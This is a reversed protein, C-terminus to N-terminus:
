KVSIPCYILTVKGGWLEKPKGPKLIIPSEANKDASTLTAGKMSCERNYTYNRTPNELSIHLQQKDGIDEITEPEIVNTCNIVRIFYKEKQVLSEKQLAKQNKTWNSLGSFIKKSKSLWLIGVMVLAVAVVGPLGFLSNLMFNVGVYLIKNEQLISQIKVLGYYITPTFFSIGVLVAYVSWRLTLIGIFVNLFTTMSKKM